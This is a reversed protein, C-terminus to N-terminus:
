RALLPADRCANYTNLLPGALSAGVPGGEADGRVGCGELSSQAAAKRGRGRGRGKGRGRGM